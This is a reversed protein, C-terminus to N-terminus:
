KDMTPSLITPNMLKGVTNISHQIYDQKPYPSMHGPGYGEVIITM